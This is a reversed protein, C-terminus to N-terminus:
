VKTSRRRTRSRSRGKTKRAKGMQRFQKEDDKLLKPVQVKLLECLRGELHM